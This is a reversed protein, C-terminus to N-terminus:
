RERPQPCGGPGEFSRWMLMLGAGVVMLPWSTDYDLGYLHFENVLGWGGIFLLWMGSRRSRAVRGSRPPDILRVIGFAIVFFPWYNVDVDMWAMRDVLLLAGSVILAIGLLLHAGGRPARQSDEMTTM